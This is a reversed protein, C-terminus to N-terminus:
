VAMASIHPMNIVYKVSMQLTNKVWNGILQKSIKEDLSFFSSIEEVLNPNIYCWSDNNNYRIQVYRDSESRIFHINNGMETQIFDQNNLYTFIVKDLQSETILYKM